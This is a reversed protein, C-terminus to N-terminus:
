VTLVLKAIERTSGLRAPPGWFGCGRGVFIHRDGAQYLGRSYPYALGVMATMPFIQGGHTHGSIQLDVGAAAAVSFNTPQHALLVAAREPDRDKMAADLDYGTGGRRRGGSWDDVGVLDFSGGADGISVRRNRLVTIGLSELFACWELDGSSYDHNGTVFYTGYRANLAALGAVSSGLEAVSGDVLDGTIVLVDPDLANAQEVLRDLYRRRIFPGVHVDTLQVISVGDLASPLRPIKVALETITADDFARAIGYGSLLGSGIAIGRPITHAVFHRRAVDVAPPAPSLRRYAFAGLRVLDGLLVAVFTCLLIAMWTYSVRPYAVAIWGGDKPISGRLMLLAAMAALVIAVVIRGRRSPVVQWVGRFYIYLSILLAGGGILLSFSVMRM